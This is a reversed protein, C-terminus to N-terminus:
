KMDTIRKVYNIKEDMTHNSERRCIFADKDCLFCKRGPYGLDKRSVKGESTLVDIDLLRGHDSSEEYEATVKKVSLRDEYTVIFCEPGTKLLDVRELIIRGRFEDELNSVAKLFVDELNGWTKVCGPINMSFSILTTGSFRMLLSEQIKVRKERRELIENLTVSKGSDYNKM